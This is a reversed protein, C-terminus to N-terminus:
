QVEICPRRRWLPVFYLHEKKKKSFDAYLFLTKQGCSMHIRKGATVSRLRSYLPSLILRQKAARAIGDGSPLLLFPFFGLVLNSSTRISESTILFVFLLHESSDFPRGM